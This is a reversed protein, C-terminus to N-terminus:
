PAQVRALLEAYADEDEGPVLPPRGLLVQAATGGTVIAAEDRRGAATSRSPPAM